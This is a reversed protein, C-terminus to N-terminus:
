VRVGGDLKNKCSGSLSLWSIVGTVEGRRCIFVHLCVLVEDTSFQQWEAMVNCWFMCHVNKFEFSFLVINVIRSCSLLIDSLAAGSRYVSRVEKLVAVLQVIDPLSLPRQQEYFEENDISM